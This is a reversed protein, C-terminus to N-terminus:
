FVGDRIFVKARYKSLQCYTALSKFTVKDNIIDQFIEHNGFLPLIVPVKHPSMGELM